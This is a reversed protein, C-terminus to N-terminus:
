EEPESTSRQNAVCAVALPCQSCRPRRSTCVSEALEILALYAHDSTVDEAGILRAVAIRGDTRSNKRDVGTGTFRAALRLVGATVLVPDEDEDPAVRVALEATSETVHPAGRMGSVTLISDPNEQFWAAAELVKEANAEREIWSAMERLQDGHTLTVSPSDLKSVIPWLSRVSDPASRGLLLESQVVLWRASPRDLEARALWPFRLSGSGERTEFWAALRRAITLTSDGAPRGHNLSRLIQTGLLEALRPPVANGIQRFAGSPPGAFRIHDPFTQVRAAERITLTRDQEPHIYWYGDKAIHATITRSLQNWDLRKYKDDFIDDRYRKLSPGRGTSSEESVRDLAAVADDIESYSTSSDMASFILQDDERVPRTIHDFVKARDEARVSARARRQFETVPGSYDAWGEAGNAPRWGGEVPPLDGIATRLTVQYGSEDPWEFASNRELGVLILRQRFQPVEFRSTDLVRASVAYGMDELLEVMTRLIQMDRDLAMDPVNEMLVARPRIGEVVGVFSEWLDRREDQDHRRGSRVLDRIISRGAKSFPQCPPGGAVLDVEASRGISIIREVMEENALDWNVSLGPCHARHTELADDQHDVGLIVEFGAQQLGLSLGGAGCFLDIAKPAAVSQAWDLYREEDDETFADPHDPLRVFPGRVASVGVRRQKGM